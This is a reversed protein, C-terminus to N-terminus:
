RELYERYVGSTGDGPMAVRVGIYAYKGEPAAKVFEIMGPKSGPHKQNLNKIADISIEYNTCSPCAVELKDDFDISKSEAKTACLPCENTNNRHIEM